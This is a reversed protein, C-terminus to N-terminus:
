DDTILVCINKNGNQLELSAKKPVVVIPSAYPSLSKCIVGARELNAIEEQVFSHHRLPFVYPWSAIPPGETEIEM